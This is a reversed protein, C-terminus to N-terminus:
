APLNDRRPSVSPCHQPGPWGCATGLAAPGSWFLGRGGGVQWLVSCMEYHWYLLYLIYLNIKKGKIAETLLMCKM